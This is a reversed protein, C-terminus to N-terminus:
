LIKGKEYINKKENFNKIACYIHTHKHSHTHKAHVKTALNSMYIM